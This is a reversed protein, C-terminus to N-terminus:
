VRLITPLTLHTYSVPRLSHPNIWSSAALWAPWARSSTRPEHAWQRWGWFDATLHDRMTDTDGFRLQFCRLVDSLTLEPPLREYWQRAVSTLRNRLLLCATDAPIHQISIYDSFDHVWEGANARRDSAFQTPMLDGDRDAVGMM